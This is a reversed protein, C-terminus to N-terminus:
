YIQIYTEPVTLTDSNSNFDRFKSVYKATKISALKKTSM